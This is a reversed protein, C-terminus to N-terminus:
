AEEISVDKAGYKLDLTSDLQESLKGLEGPLAFAKPKESEEKGTLALKPTQTVMSLTDDDIITNLDYGQKRLLKLADLFQNGVELKAQEEKM